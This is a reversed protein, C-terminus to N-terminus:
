KELAVNGPSGSPLNFINRRWFVIEEYIANIIQCIDEKTHPGWVSIKNQTASQSTLNMTQALAPTKSQSTM